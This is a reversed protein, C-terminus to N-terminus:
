REPFDSKKLAAVRAKELEIDIRKVANTLAETLDVLLKMQGELRHVRQTLEPTPKTKM